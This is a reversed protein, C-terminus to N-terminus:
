QLDRKRRYLAESACRLRVRMRVRMRVRVRVRACTCVRVRLKCAYRALAPVRM